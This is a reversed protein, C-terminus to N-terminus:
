YYSGGQLRSHLVELAMLSAMYCITFVASLLPDFDPAHTKEQMEANGARLTFAVQRVRARHTEPVLFWRLYAV